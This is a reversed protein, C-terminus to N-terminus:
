IHTNSRARFETEVASIAAHCPQVEIFEVRERGLPAAVSEGFSFDILARDEVDGM